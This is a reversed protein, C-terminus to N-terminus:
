GLLTAILDEYKQAVLDLSQAGSQKRISQVGSRYIRLVERTIAGTDGPQIYVVGPYDGIYGRMGEVDSIVILKGYSKAIQVVGSTVPRLYPLVMLDMASFYVPIEQDPIYHPFLTIQERYKSTEIQDRLEGNNEWVEGALLLRCDRIIDEPLSSFADILHRLGKYERIVGFYGLVFNETIGLKRKAETSQLPPGYHVPMTPPVVVIKGKVVPLVNSLIAKSGESQTTYADLGRLFLGGMGRSYVRIPWISNELPDTIEHMELIIKSNRHMAAKIVLQMHVVTASWWMIIIAEPKMDKLFQCSKYWSVPSNYDMGDYVKVAPDFNIAYIDKGIHERGPYLFRPALNRFLLASVQNKGALANALEVTRVTIGSFFLKSPGVICIRHGSQPLDLSRHTM